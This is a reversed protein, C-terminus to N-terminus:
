DGGSPLKKVSAGVLGTRSQGVEAGVLRKPSARCCTRSVGNIPLNQISAQELKIAEFFRCRPMLPSPTLFISRSAPSASLQKLSALEKRAASRHIKLGRLTLRSKKPVKKDLFFHRM